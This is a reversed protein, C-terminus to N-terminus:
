QVQQRLEGADAERRGRRHQYTWLLVYRPLPLRRPEHGCAQEAPLRFRVLGPDGGLVVPPQCVKASSVDAIEEARMGEIVTVVLPSTIGKHLRDIVQVVPMGTEFEYDGAVLGGEHGELAVLIRFLIASSVVGEEELREGVDRVSEGELVTVLVTQRSGPIRGALPPEEKLLDDPTERIQWIAIGLMALVTVIGGIAFIRM